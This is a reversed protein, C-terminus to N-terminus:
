RAVTVAQTSIGGPSRLVALYLGPPLSSAAWSAEHRGPAFAGQVLTAVRRGLADYLDLDVDGADPLTFALTTVGRAPNPRPRELALAAPEPGPASAVAPRESRFVGSPTGAYLYGDADQSLAAVQRSPLGDTVAQWTDGRDTTRQISGGWGHLYVAGDAARLMGEPRGFAPGLREWPAGSESARALRYVSSGENTVILFQGSGIPVLADVSGERVLAWTRGDDDSQVLAGGAGHAFSTRQGAVLAGGDGEVLAGVPGFYNEPTSRLWTLGGDDSRFLDGRDSIFNSTSTGALLTGSRTRILVEVYSANSPHVRPLSATTWTQGGDATRSVAGSSGLVLTGDDLVLLASVYTIGPPGPVSVWSAGRDHTRYITPSSYRWTAFVTWPGASSMLLAEPERSVGDDIRVVTGTQLDIRRVGDAYLSVDLFPSAPGPPLLAAVGGGDPDRYVSAWSAGDASRVVTTGDTSAARYYLFGDAGAELPGVYPTLSPGATQWTLGADISRAFSGDRRVLFAAGSPLQTVGSGPSPETLLTWTNGRDGSRYFRENCRLLLTGDALADLEDGFLYCTESPRGVASWATAERRYAQGRYDVAVLAGDPLAGLGTVAVEPLGDISWTLGDTSSALVGFPPAAVFRTGGSAAWAIAQVDRLSDQTVRTWPGDNESRYLGADAGAVLAGTPTRFMLSAGLPATRALGASAPVWRVPQAHAATGLFLVAALRLLRTM